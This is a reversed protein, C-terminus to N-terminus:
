MELKVVVIGKSNGKIRSLDIVYTSPAFTIKGLKRGALDYIGVVQIRGVMERPLFFRDGVVKFVYQNPSAPSISKATSSIPRNITPSELHFTDFGITTVDHLGSINAAWIFVMKIAHTASDVVIFKIIKIKAYYPYKDRPDPGTKLIYVNGIRSHLSDPLINDVIGIQNKQFFSDTPANKISDLNMKGMKVAYGVPVNISYPPDYFL